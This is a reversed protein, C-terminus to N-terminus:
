IRLLRDRLEPLLTFSVESVDNPLSATGYGRRGSRGLETREASLRLTTGSGFVCAKSPGGTVLAQPSPSHSAKEFESPQGAETEKSKTREPPRADAHLSVRSSDAFRPM